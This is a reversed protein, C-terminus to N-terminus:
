GGAGGEAGEHEGGVGPTREVNSEDEMYGEAILRQTLFLQIVDSLFVENADACAQLAARLKVSARFGIIPKRYKVGRKIEAASV